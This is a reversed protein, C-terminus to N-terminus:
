YSGGQWTSLSQATWVSGNYVLFDGSSPSAPLPIGLDKHEWETVHGSTVTKPVLAKGADSASASTINSIAGNLSSLEEGVTLQTWHAATWEEPTSIATNCEYYDDDYIVHDGVAYSAPYYKHAIVAFNAKRDITVNVSSLEDGLDTAVVHSSNWAGAAHDSTFRYVIGNNTVYQGATYATSTSFAPALRILDAKADLLNKMLRSTPIASDDYSNPPATSEDIARGIIEKTGLSYGFGDKDCIVQYVGAPLTYTQSGGYIMSVGDIKLTKSGTNNINLNVGTKYTVDSPIVLQFATGAAYAFGHCSATLVPFNGTGVSTVKVLVSLDSPALESDVLNGNQNLGAFNGSVANEVKDAKGSVASKIKDRLNYYVAKLSSLRILKAPTSTRRPM